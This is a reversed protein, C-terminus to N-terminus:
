QLKDILSTYMNDGVPKNNPSLLKNKVFSDRDEKLSDQNNIIKEEIFCIVDEDTSGHYHLDYCRRGFENIESLHEERSLYLVPKGTLLYECLFSSCDHIMGDSYKFLPAFSGRSIFGNPLDEWKQFYSDTKEKGWLTYLKEKLVPHPRFAFNIDPYDIAIDLMKDCVYLFTSNSLIDIDLITHHPAWIVNYSRKEPWPNDLDSNLDDFTLCGVVVSNKGKNRAYKKQLEYEPYTQLYLILSINQLTNDFFTPNADVNLGYPTYLFLSTNAYKKLGLRQDGRGYPQTYVVIDPTLSYIMDSYRRKEIDYEDLVPFENNQCYKVIESNVKKAKDISWNPYIFPVITVKFRKDKVLIKVMSEYRWMSIDIIYFVIHITDKEKIKKLLNPISSNYDNIFKNEIKRNVKDKINKLCNFSKKGFVFSIITAATKFIINKNM